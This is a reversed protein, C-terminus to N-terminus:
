EVSALHQKKLAVTMRKLHMVSFSAADRRRAQGRANMLRRGAGERDLVGARARRFRSAAAAQHPPLGRDSWACQSRFSFITIDAGIVSSSTKWISSGLLDVAKQYALGGVGLRWKTGFCQTEFNPAPAVRRVHIFSIKTFGQPQFTVGCLM